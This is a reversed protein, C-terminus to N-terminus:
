ECAIVAETDFLFLPQLQKFDVFRKKVGSFFYIKKLM